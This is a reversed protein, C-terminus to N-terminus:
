DHILVQVNPTKQSMFYSSHFLQVGTVRVFFFGTYWLFLCVSGQFDIELNKEVSGVNKKASGLKSGSGATFLFSSAPLTFFGTFNM